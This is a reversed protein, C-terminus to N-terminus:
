TDEEVLSLTAILINHNAQSEHSWHAKTSWPDGYMKTESGSRLEIEENINWGQVERFSVSSSDLRSTGMIMSDLNLQM